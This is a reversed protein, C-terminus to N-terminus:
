LGLSKFFAAIANLFSTIASSIGSEISAIGITVTTSPPITSVTPNLVDIATQNILITNPATWAGWAGGSFSVTSTQCAAGFDYIGVLTPTYTFNFKYSTTTANFLPSQYVYTKTSNQYVFSACQTNRVTTLGIIYPTSIYQSPIAVNVQGTLQINPYSINKAQAGAVNVSLLNIPTNFYASLSAFLNTFFSGINAELTAFSFTSPSSGPPTTSSGSITTTASTTGSGQNAIGNNYSIAALMVNRIQTFAQVYAEEVNCTGGNPGCTAAKENASYESSYSAITSNIGPLQSVDSQAAYAGGTKNIAVYLNTVGADQLQNNQGNYFIQYWDTPFIVAGTTGQYYAGSVVLGSSQPAGTNQNILQSSSGYVTGSYIQTPLPLTYAINLLHGIFGGAILSVAAVIIIIVALAIITLNAQGKLNKM